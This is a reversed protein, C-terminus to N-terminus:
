KRAEILLGLGVLGDFRRLLWRPWLAKALSLAAGQHRQGVDGLLLDGFGLKVRLNVHEFQKFLQRAEAKNFAQTGPSELHRAYIEKLSVFPKGRLLAYRVWLLAGVLSASHYIMIRATGDKRLVRFVESIAQATNPSHHLCGYSYVLDFSEAAFPLQEADAVFVSPRYGAVRFRSRTHDVARPTLDVGVLKAPGAKAWELHDAGMGVGIELVDRDKGDAFRAFDFIYPELYYRAKAQAELRDRVSEGDAYVEGCSAENWFDRVRDKAQSMQPPDHPM